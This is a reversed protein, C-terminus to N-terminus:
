KKLAMVEEVKQDMQKMIDEVSGNGQLLEQMGKGLVENYDAHWVFWPCYVHGKGLVDKVSTFQEPLKVDAGELYSGSGPQSACLAEQGEKSGMLAVVQLAADKQKSNANVGFVVGFGGVLYENGEKTGVFPMMDFKLNPNTEQIAKVSWPGSEWMAAKGEAFQKLATDYDSQLTEQPIYGGKIYQEAWTKIIEELKSGSFKAKGESIQADFTNGAETQLYDVIALGLPSKAMPEWSKNGWAQPVIGADLLKKHIEIMEAFTKPLAINNKEFIEKNYFIGEFWTPGPVGYVKGNHSISDKFSKSFGKMFEQDTLDLLYGASAYEANDAVPLIDPGEGAQLQTAITGKLQDVAVFNYDIEINPLKEKALKLFEAVSEEKNWYVMRVKVKDGATEAKTEETKTEAAKTEEAQKESKTEAPKQTTSCAVLMTAALVIGAIKKMKM